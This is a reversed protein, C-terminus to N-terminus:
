HKRYETPAKKKPSSGPLLEIKHEGVTCKGPKDSFVNKHKVILNLMQQKQVSNLHNLDVSNLDIMDTEIDLLSPYCPIEGFDEEDDFIVGISQVRPIFKRINNAHLRRVSGNPMEIMYSYDNLKTRVVGPGQFKSVLKNTSDPFLVLVQDGPDFVKDRTRLNYHTVYQRQAKSCREEALEHTILLDSKVQDCYEQVSKTITNDPTIMGTMNDRLVSLVGRPLKGYVMQYPSVGLSSHPISRYAWLLYEIKQDWEKPKVSNMVHHLMKQLTQQFREIVGNGEHHYPTCTRLEIGLQKYFEKTLSAVMNSGNDSIVVRPFGIRCFIKLLANCTNAATPSKLCAVEPWKTAQDIVCLLYKSGKSSEPEIPGVVDISVTDGFSAPRIVATIPVRDNVTIRKSQQCEKCSQTYKNIDVKMSPWFFSTQVRQMTKKFAFHGGWVSDHALKLVQERKVTPLVLQFVQFGFIKTKRYILKDLDRIFFESKSSKALDRCLELSKDNQQLYVMEDHAKIAREAPGFPVSDVADDTAGHISDIQFTKLPSVNADVGVTHHPTAITDASVDKIITDNYASNIVNLELASSVNSMSHNDDNKDSCCLKSIEENACFPTGSLMTINPIVSDAESTSVLYEYDQPTLLFSSNLKNTVACKLQMSNSLIGDPRVVSCPLMVVSAQVNDGFAAVLRVKKNSGSPMLSPELLDQKCVSIDTGSDVICKLWNKGVKIDILGVPYTAFSTSSENIVENSSVFDVSRTLQHKNALDLLKVVDFCLENDCHKDMTNLSQTVTNTRVFNVRKEKSYCIDTIHSIRGCIDCCVGEKRNKQRFCTNFTHNVNGCYTCPKREHHSVYGTNVPKDKNDMKKYDKLDKKFQNTLNSNKGSPDFTSTSKSTVGPCRNAFHDKSGCTYCSGPEKKNRLKPSGGQSKVFTNFTKMEEENNVCRDSFRGLEHPELFKDLEKRNVDKLIYHPMGSKIKDSIIISKLKTFDHVERSNLYHMFLSDLRTAYQVYTENSKKSANWFFDRYKNPTLAFERLLAETFSNYDAVEDVPLTVILKRAAKSLFPNLLPVKVEPPVNYERFVRNVSELYLPIETIDDPMNTLVKKLLDGFVKIKNEKSEEKMRIEEKRNRNADLVAQDKRGLADILVKREEIQAEFVREREIRQAEAEKEREAKQAEREEKQAQMQAMQIHWAAEQQVKQAQAAERQIELAANQIARDADAAAQQIAQAKAAAEQKVKAAEEREAKAIKAAEQMQMRTTEQMQTFMMQMMQMPDMPAPAHVEAVVKRFPAKIALLGEAMLCFQVLEEGNAAKVVDADCGEKILFKKRHELNEKTWYAKRHELSEAM